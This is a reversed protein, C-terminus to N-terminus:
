FKAQISWYEGDITEAIQDIGFDNKELNLYKRIGAPIEKSLWVNKFKIKYIPAAKLYLQTLRDFIDGKVKTKKDELGSLSKYFSDWDKSALIFEDPSIISTM